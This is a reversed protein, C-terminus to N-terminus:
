HEFYDEYKRISNQYLLNYSEGGKGAESFCKSFIRCPTKFPPSPSSYFHISEICKRPIPVAYISFIKGCM